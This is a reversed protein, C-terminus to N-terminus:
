YDNTGQELFEKNRKIWDAWTKSKVIELEMKPNEAMGLVTLAEFEKPLEKIYNFVNEIHEPKSRVVIATTLAYLVDLEKSDPVREKNGKLIANIDPLKSYVSLFAYFESAVGPGVSSDIREGLTHLKSAVEWSRPTPFAMEQSKPTQSLHQPFKSLFSLIQEDIGNKIAWKKWIDFDLHVTVHSFRNALPAPFKTVNAKDEARNGAAILKVNDPLEYEGIRRDLIIQYAANMVSAPALNIEDFFIVTPKAGKKPLFDPPLWKATSAAKDLMPLGRLDVPNLLSLRIDIFTYGNEEAVQKVAQSKGVGPPGWIMLPIHYESRLIKGVTEKLESINVEM